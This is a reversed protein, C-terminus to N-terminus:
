QKRNRQKKSNPEASTCHASAPPKLSARKKKPPRREGASAPKAPAAPPASLSAASAPRQAAQEALRERRMDAARRQQDAAMRQAEARQAATRPDSAEVVKGQPCPSRSYENGCRYVPQANAGLTVLCLLLAAAHKMPPDKQM